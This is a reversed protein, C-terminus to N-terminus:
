KFTPINSNAEALENMKETFKVRAQNISEPKLNPLTITSNDSFTITYIEKDNQSIVHGKKDEKTQHNENYNLSIIRSEITFQEKMIAEVGEQMQKRSSEIILMEKLAKEKAKDRFFSFHSERSDQEAHMQKELHPIAVAMWYHAVQALEELCTINTNFDSPNAARRKFATIYKDRALEIM